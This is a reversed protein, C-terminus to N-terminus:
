AGLEGQITTVEPATCVSAPLGNTMKCIAATLNNAEGVVAKAVASSPDNLRSAIQAQTMTSLVSAGDYGETQMMYQGGFDIFPYAIQATGTAAKYTALQASTLKELEARNRDANEVPVFSLYKSTYSSKYFDLTALDGDDVASHIMSLNSFTGFRSLAATMSWREAACIPCFEGGIFLLEPKGNVSLPPQGSLPKIALQATGGGVTQFTAPSISTVDNVVAATAAVRNGAADNPTSSKHTIAIVAILAIVVAAAVVSILIARARRRQDVRAQSARAAAAKEKATAAQQERRRRNTERGM